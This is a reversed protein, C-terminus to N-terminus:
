KVDFNKLMREIEGLADLLDQRNAKSSSKQLAEVYRQFEHWVKSMAKEGSEQKLPLKHNENWKMEKGANILKDMEDQLMDIDVTQNILKKFEICLNRFYNHPDQGPKMAFGSPLKSM